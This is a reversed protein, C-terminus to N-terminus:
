DGANATHITVNIGLPTGDKGSVEVGQPAKGRYMEFLWQSASLRVKENEASNALRIINGLIDHKEIQEGLEIRWDTPKKGAGARAGGPALKNGKQFPM